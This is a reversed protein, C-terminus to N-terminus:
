YSPIILPCSSVFTPHHPFHYILQANFLHFLSLSSWACHDGHAHIPPPHRTNAHSIPIFSKPHHKEFFVEIRVALSVCSVWCDFSSFLFLPFLIFCPFFVSCAHPFITDKGVFDMKIFILFSELLFLHITGVCLYKACGNCLVCLLFVSVWCTVMFFTNWMSSSGLLYEYGCPAYCFPLLLSVEPIRCALRRSDEWAFAKEKRKGRARFGRKKRGRYSGERMNKEERRKRWLGKRSETKQGIEGGGGALEIVDWPRGWAAEKGPRWCSIIM